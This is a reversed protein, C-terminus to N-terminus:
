AILGGHGIYGCLLSIINTVRSNYKTHLKKRMHWRHTAQSVLKFYLETRNQETRTDNAQLSM